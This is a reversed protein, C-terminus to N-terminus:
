SINASESAGPLTWPVGRWHTWCPVGNENFDAWEQYLQQERLSGKQSSRACFIVSHEQEAYSEVESTDLFPNRSIIDPTNLIDSESDNVLDNFGLWNWDYDGTLVFIVRRLDAYKDLQALLPERPEEMSNDTTFMQTFFLTFLFGSSSLRLYKLSSANALVKTLDVYRHLDLCTLVPFTEPTINYTILAANISLSRLAPFSKPLVIPFLSTGISITLSVLGPLAYHLIDLISQRLFSVRQERTPERYDIHRRHHARRFPFRLRQIIKKWLLSPSATPKSLEYREFIAANIQKSSAWYDQNDVSILLNKVQNDPERGRVFTEHFSLVENISKLAISQLRAARSIERMYRSVAALSCGTNGDDVCALKFIYVWLEDPLAEIKMSCEPILTLAHQIRLTLRFIHV